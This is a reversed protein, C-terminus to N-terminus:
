RSSALLKEAAAITEPDGYERAAALAAEAHAAAERTRKGALSLRALEAHAASLARTSRASKAVDVAEQLLKVAREPDGAHIEFHVVRPM